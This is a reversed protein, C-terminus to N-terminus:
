SKEFTITSYQENFANSEFERPQQLNQVRFFPLQSFRGEGDGDRLFMKVDSGSAVCGCALSRSPINRRM